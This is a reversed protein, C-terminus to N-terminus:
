FPLGFGDKIRSFSYVFNKVLRPTDAIIGIAIALIACLFTGAIHKSLISCGNNAMVITIWNAAALAGTALYLVSYLLECLYVQAWKEHINRPKRFM